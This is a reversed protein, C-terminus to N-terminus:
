PATGNRRLRDLAARAQAHKPFLELARAYLQFALDSRGRREYDLARTYAVTADPPVQGNGAKKGAFSLDRAFEKALEEVLASLEDHGGSKKLPPRLTQAAAVDVMRIDLRATLPDLYVNGTVVYDADLVQGARAAVEDSLVGAMDELVAVAQIHRRDLVAVEPKRTLEDTVRQWIDEGVERAADSRTLSFAHFPLVAVRPRAPPPQQATLNPPLTLIAALVAVFYAKM